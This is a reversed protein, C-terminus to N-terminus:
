DSPSSTLQQVYMIRMQWFRIIEISIFDETTVAVQTLNKLLNRWFSSCITAGSWSRDRITVSWQSLDVQVFHRFALYSWACIYLFEVVTNSPRLLRQPPNAKLIAIFRNLRQRSQALLLCWKPTTKYLLPQTINSERYTYM